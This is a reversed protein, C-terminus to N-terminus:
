LHSLRCLLVKTSQTSQVAATAKSIEFIIYTLHEISASCRPPHYVLIITSHVQLNIHPSINWRFRVARM